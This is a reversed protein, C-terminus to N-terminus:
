QPAAGPTAGTQDSSQAGVTITSEDSSPMLVELYSSLPSAGGGLATLALGAGLSRGGNVLGTRGLMSEEAALNYYIRGLPDNWLAMRVARDYRLDFIRVPRVLEPHSALYLRFSHVSFDFSARAEAPPSPNGAPSVGPERTQASVSGAALLVLLALVLRFHTAPRPM